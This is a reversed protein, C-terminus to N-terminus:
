HNATIQAKDQQNFYNVKMHKLFWTDTVAKANFTILFQKFESEVM